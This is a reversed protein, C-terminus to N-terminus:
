EGPNGTEESKDKHVGSDILIIPVQASEAIRIVDLGIHKFPTFLIGDVKDPGAVARRAIELAKSKYRKSSARRVEMNLDAGAAKMMNFVDDCWPHDFGQILLVKWTQGYASPCSILILLTLYMVTKKRILM